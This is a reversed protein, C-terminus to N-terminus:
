GRSGGFLRKWWKPKVIKIDAPEFDVNEMADKLTALTLPNLWHILREAEERVKNGIRYLVLKDELNFDAALRAVYSPDDVIIMNAWGIHPRWSAVREVGDAGSAIYPAEEPLRQFYKINLVRQLVALGELMGGEESIVLVNAVGVSVLVQEEESDGNAFAAIDWNPIYTDVTMPVEEENSLEDM